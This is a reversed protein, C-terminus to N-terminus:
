WLPLNYFIGTHFDLRPTTSEETSTRISDGSAYFMNQVTRVDEMRQEKKNRRRRIDDKDNADSYNNGQGSDTNKSLYHRSSFFPQATPLSIFFANVSVEAAHLLHCIITM